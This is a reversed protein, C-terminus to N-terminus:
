IYSSFKIRKKILAAPHRFRTERKEVLGVVNLVKYIRRDERLIINGKFNM